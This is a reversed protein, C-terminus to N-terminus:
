EYLLICPKHQLLYLLATIPNVAANRLHLAATAANGHWNRIPPSDNMSYTCCLLSKPLLLM